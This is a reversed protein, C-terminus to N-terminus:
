LYKRVVMRDTASNEANDYAVVKIIQMHVFRLLKDKTLNYTYPATTDNGKLKGNVYFEVKAIGSGSDTANVEVTIDGIILAMRLFLRRIKHNGMYFAREPKIIKITPTTTDNTTVYKYITDKRGDNDTVNLTVNYPTYEGAYTHTPNQKFSGKGDGFTWTYDAITGDRDYSLSTFTVTFKNVIYKFDAVPLNEGFPLILPYRDQNEGDSINYPKDVIGDSNNDYAGESPEDFDSYYNGGSPYGNDWTNNGEDRTNNRVNNILNNHYISNDRACTEWMWFCIGDWNSIINNRTITNNNINTYYTVIGYGANEGIINDSILNHSGNLYMGSGGSYSLKCNEITNYDSDVWIGSDFTWDDGGKLTFGRVICEDANLIIAHEPYKVDSSGDIITLDRDEGVLTISKNVIVNEYYTDNYVFITDGNSSANIADQIKTYNGQGGGGVYLTNGSGSVGFVPTIAFCSLLLIGVIGIAILNKNM